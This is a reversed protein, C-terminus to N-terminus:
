EFTGSYKEIFQVESGQNGVKKWVRARFTARMNASLVEFTIYYIRGAVLKSNAKLLCDYEFNTNNNDNDLQLAQKALKIIRPSNFEHLTCPVIIGPTKGDFKQVDFGKSAAIQRYYERIEEDNMERWRPRTIYEVESDSDSESEEEEEEEEESSSRNCPLKAHPQKLTQQEEKVLPLISSDLDMQNKEKQEYLAPDCYDTFASSKVFKSVFFSELSVLFKRIAIDNNDNYVQLAQKSYEIMLPSTTITLHYPHIGGAVLKSPDTPPMTVYEVSSDSDDEAEDEEDETEDDKEEEEEEEEEEQKSPSVKNCPLKASQELFHELVEQVVEGFEHYCIGLASFKTLIYRKLSALLVSSYSLPGASGSSLRNLRWPKYTM